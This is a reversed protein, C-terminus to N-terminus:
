RLRNMKVIEYFPPYKFSNVLIFIFFTLVFFVLIHNDFSVLISSGTMMMQVVFLNQIYASNRKLIVKNDNTKEENEVLILFFLGSYSLFLISCITILDIHTGTWCTFDCYNDNFPSQEDTKQTCSYVKFFTSAIPLFFFESIRWFMDHAKVFFKEIKRAKIKLKNKIFLILRFLITTIVFGLIFSYIALQIWKIYNENINLSSLM